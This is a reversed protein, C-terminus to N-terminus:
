ANQKQENLNQYTKNVLYQTTTFVVTLMGFVIFFWKLYLKMVAQFKMDFGNFVIVSLLIWTLIYGIYNKPNMVIKRVLDFKILIILIVQIIYFVILNILSLLLLRISETFGLNFVIFYGGAYIIGILYLLFIASFDKSYSYVYQKNMKRALDYGIFISIIPQIIFTLILIVPYLYIYDSLLSMFIVLFVTLFIRLGRKYVLISSCNPCKNIM